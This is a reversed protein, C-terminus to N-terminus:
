LSWMLIVNQERNNNKWEFKNQSVIKRQRKNYQLLILSKFENARTQMKINIEFRVKYINWKQKLNKQKLSFDQGKGKCWWKYPRGHTLSCPTGSGFAVPAPGEPFASQLLPAPTGWHWWQRMTIAGGAPHKLSDSTKCKTQLSVFFNSNCQKIQM